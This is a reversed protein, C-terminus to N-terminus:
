PLPAVRLADIDRVLADVLASVLVEGKEKTALTPDGWVGSPSYKGEEGQRRSLPGSQGPRYDKVAARMDVADPAIVLMMSTEIEDAHTGGEQKGVAKEAPELAKLLDTYTLLIGDKALEAAAESLPKNTSVGTNLAYFRRPGFRALSRCTETLVARATDLGLTITGPYDVFAPYYSSGVIPTAVVNERELVRDRLYAAMLWDNSLKLHPGHEKSAAGVPIVVVADPALVKEAQIWTLDELRVGRPAAAPRGSAGCSAVSLAALAAAVRTGM